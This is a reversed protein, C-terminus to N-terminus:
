SGEIRWLAIIPWPSPDPMHVVRRLGAHAHVWGRRARIMLHCQASGCQVLAIDGAIAAADLSLKCGESQALYTEIAALYNGKLSYRIPVDPLGIAHAALGVCDLAIGPQRGHFRFPTGVAQLARAAAREGGIV